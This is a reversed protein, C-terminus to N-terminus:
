SYMLCSKFQFSVIRFLPSVKQFKTQPRAPTACGGTVYGLNVGGGEPKLKAKCLSKHVLKGTSSVNQTVNLVSQELFM